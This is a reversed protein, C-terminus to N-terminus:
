AFGEPENRHAVKLAGGELDIRVFATDPRIQFTSAAGTAPLTIGVRQGPRADVDLVHAVGIQNRTRAQFSSVLAGELRVEVTEGTFGEQFRLEAM